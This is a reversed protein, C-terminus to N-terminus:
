FEEWAKGHYQRFGKLRIHIERVQRSAEREDFLLQEEKNKPKPLPNKQPEM